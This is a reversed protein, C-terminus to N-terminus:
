CAGMRVHAKGAFHFQGAISLLPWTTLELLSLFYHGRGDAVDM